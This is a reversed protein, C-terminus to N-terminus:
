ITWGGDIVHVQGTTFSSEDSALYLALAAVEDRGEARPVPRVGEGADRDLVRGGDAERDAGVLARAEADRAQLSLPDSPPVSRRAALADDIRDNRALMLGLMLSAASNEAAAYRAVQSLAIPM